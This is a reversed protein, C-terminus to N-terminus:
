LIQAYHTLKDILQVALNKSLELSVARGGEFITLTITDDENRCIAYLMKDTIKTLNISM